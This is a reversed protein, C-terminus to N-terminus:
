AGRRLGHEARQSAGSRPPRVYSGSDPGQKGSPLLIRDGGTGLAKVAAFLKARSSDAVLVWTARM